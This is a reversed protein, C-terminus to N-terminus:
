AEPLNSDLLRVAARNIGTYNHRELYQRVNQHKWFQPKRALAEKTSKKARSFYQKFSEEVSNFAFDYWHPKHLFTIGEREDIAKDFLLNLSYKNELEFAKECQQNLLGLIQVVSSASDGTLGCGDASTELNLVNLDLLHLVIYTTDWIEYLCASMIETEYTKSAKDSFKAAREYRKAALMFREVHGRGTAAIRELEHTKEMVSNSAALRLNVRDFYDTIVDLDHDITVM